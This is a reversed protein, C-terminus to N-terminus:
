WSELLNVQCNGREKGSYDIFNYNSELLLMEVLFPNTLDWRSLAPSSATKTSFVEASSMFVEDQLYFMFEELSPPSECKKYASIMYREIEGTKRDSLIIRNEPLRVAM